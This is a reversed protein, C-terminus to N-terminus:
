GRARDLRAIQNLGHLLAKATPYIQNVAGVRHGEVALRAAPKQSVVFHPVKEAIEIQVEAM